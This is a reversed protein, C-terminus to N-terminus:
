FDQPFDEISLENLSPFSDDKSSLIPDSIPWRIKLEKDAWHIGAENEPFINKNVKYHLDAQNSLVCFGHAIGPPM